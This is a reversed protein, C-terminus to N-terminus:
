RRVALPVAEGDVEVAYGRRLAWEVQSGEGEAVARAQEESVYVLEPAGSRSDLLTYLGPGAERLLLVPPPHAWALRWRNVEAALAELLPQDALSGSEWQGSLWYALDPEHVGFVAAYAPLPGVDTIGWRAPERAYVSFRELAIAGLGVPPSLHRLLPLLSLQERYHLADDGPVGFLLNWKVELGAGRAARLLDIGARGRSGKGMLRLVPTSLSEIGPQVSVFRARVLAEAREPDLLPRIEGFLRADQPLERALVPLLDPDRPLTNDALDVRRVPSGRLLQRLDSAVKAASRARHHMGTGVLGCFRCPSKEGWWCGRSAEYALWAHDLQDPLHAQLQHIYEGLDPAPLSELDQVPECRLLPAPAVEGAVLAPFLLDAEGSVVVDVWAIRALAAGMPGDGNRGGLVTLVTPDARKVARLLAVAASTQDYSTTAGVVRYRGVVQSCVAEVLASGAAEAARLEELSYGVLGYRGSLEAERRVMAAHERVEALFAPDALPDTGWVGAAFLREVLLWSLPADCLATYTQVALAAALELNVYRVDVELGRARATAQLAHPGLSPRTVHAGPPVLLLADKM